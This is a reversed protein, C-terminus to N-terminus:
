SSSRSPKPQPGGGTSLRFRGDSGIDFHRTPFDERSLRSVLHAAANGREPHPLGDALRVSIWRAALLGGKDSLTVRFIGSESLLGGGSLTHYGIFNGLSYAIPRGRYREVGRIVHPGSGLVLSAGADISAHAFARPDGRDEGLFHEEGYPTHDRDVGEAGAHILVVVVPARRRARRILAQAAPIDLLDADFSYPAFGVFAVHTTGVKVSTIEGPLGTQAVGARRLAALTQARGSEGYDMSHNNAQNVLDFGAAHLQEAYAPPAQFAFCTGGGPGAGCKSSGGVSLTGELNGVTLDASGLYGRMAHVAGLFGGPPLGRETSLAMDGVWQLTFSAPPESKPRPKPKPKAAWAQGALLTTTIAGILLVRRCGLAVSGV